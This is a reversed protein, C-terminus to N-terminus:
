DDLRTVAAGRGLHWYAVNKRDHQLTFGRRDGGSRQCGAALMADRYNETAAM